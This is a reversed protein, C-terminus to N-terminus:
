DTNKLVSLAEALATHVKGNSILAGAIDGDYRQDEGFINTVKGGAEEVILKVAAIDVCKDKTGAFVCAEFQGAAVLCAATVVCGIHLVYAKSNLSVHHLVSDINYDAEPWWEVDITAHRALALDSVKIKTDNMYAGGEKVAHFLRQSFPDFVVAVEPRGNHVLALSFAAYPLGKMYPVTGDVPDCVWVYESSNESSAEEGHVAHTPYRRAVEEIVMRNIDEDAITVPTNDSKSSFRVGVAFHQSMIQGAKHALDKSFELYDEMQGTYCNSM